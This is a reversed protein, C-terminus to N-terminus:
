ARAVQGRLICVYGTSVAGGYVGAVGYEVSYTVGPYTKAMYDFGVSFAEFKSDAEVTVYGPGLDRVFPAQSKPAFKVNNM